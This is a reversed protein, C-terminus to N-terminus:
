KTFIGMDINFNCHENIIEKPQDLEEILNLEDTLIIIDIEEISYNM